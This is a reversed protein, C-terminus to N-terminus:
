LRWKQDAAFAHAHADGNTYQGAHAQADGHAHAHTHANGDWPTTDAVPSASDGSDM